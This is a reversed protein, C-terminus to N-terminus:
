PERPPPRDLLARIPDKWDGAKLREPDIFECRLVRPMERRFVEEEAFRARSSFLLSTGNAVCESVIGYGPKSGVNDAAAVPEEYRLGPAAREHESVLRVRPDADALNAARSETVLLTCGCGAAIAAYPLRLGAGGFSPLVVTAASSLGLR